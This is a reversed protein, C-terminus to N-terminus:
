PKKPCPEIEKVWEYEQHSCPRALHVNVAQQWIEERGNRLGARLGIGYSCLCPVVIFIGFVFWWHESIMNELWDHM